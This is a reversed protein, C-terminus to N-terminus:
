LEMNMRRSASPSSFLARAWPAGPTSWTRHSFGTSAPSLSAARIITSALRREADFGDSPKTRIRPSIVLWFPVFTKSISFLTMNWTRSAAAHGEVLVEGGAFRHRDAGVEEGGLRDLSKRRFVIGLGDMEIFLGRLARHKAAQACRSPMRGGDPHFEIEQRAIRVPASGACLRVEAGRGAKAIQFPQLRDK